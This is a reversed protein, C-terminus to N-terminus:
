KRFGYKKQIEDLGGPQDLLRVDTGLLHSFNAKIYQIMQARFDGGNSFVDNFSM